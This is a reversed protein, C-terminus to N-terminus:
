VAATGCTPCAAGSTAEYLTGCTSCAHLVPHDGHKFRRFAEVSISTEPEYAPIIPEPLVPSDEHPEFPTPEAADPALAASKVPVARQGSKKTPHPPKKATVPSGV